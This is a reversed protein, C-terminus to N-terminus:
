RLGSCRIPCARDRKGSCRFTFGTSVYWLHSCFTTAEDVNSNGYRV